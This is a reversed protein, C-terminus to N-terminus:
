ASGGREPARLREVSAAGGTRLVDTVADVRGPDHITVAVCVDLEHARRYRSWSDSRILGTGVGYFAGLCAGVWFGGIIAGIWAPHRDNGLWALLGVAIAIGLVAGIVGWLVARRVLRRTRGDDTPAAGAPDSGTSVQIDPAAVGHETLAAVAQDVQGRDTFAAAIVDSM